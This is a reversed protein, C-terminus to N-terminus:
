RHRRRAPQARRRLRRSCGGARRLRKCGGAAQWLTEMEPLTLPGGIRRADLVGTRFPDAPNRIRERVRRFASRVTRIVLLVGRIADRLVTHRMLFDRCAAIAPNRTSHFESVIGEIM